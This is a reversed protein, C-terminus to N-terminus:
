RAFTQDGPIRLGTKKLIRTSYLVTHKRCHESALQQMRAEMDKATAEDKAHIMAFLNYPWDPYRPRQYCHSVFPLQCFAAAVDTLAEDRIDWVTMGNFLYGLRYHNPVAAIRRLVGQEALRQMRHIITAEDTGLQEALAAFPRSVLPLGAASIQMLAQDLADM